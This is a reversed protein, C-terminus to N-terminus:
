MGRGKKTSHGLQQPNGSPQNHPLGPQLPATQANGQGHSQLSSVSPAVLALPGPTYTVMAGRQLYSDNGSGSRQMHLDAQQLAAKTAYVLYGRGDKEGAFLAGDQCAELFYLRQTGAAPAPPSSSLVTQLFAPAQRDLARPLLAQRLRNATPIDTQGTKEFIDSGPEVRDKASSAPLLAADPQAAVVKRGTEDVTLWGAYGIVPLPMGRRKLEAACLEAYSAIDNPAANDEARAGCGVLNVQTPTVNLSALLAVLKAALVDAPQGAFGVAATEDAGHGVLLLKVAPNLGARRPTTDADEPGMRIGEDEFAPPSAETAAISLAGLAAALDPDSYGEDELVMPEGGALRPSGLEHVAPTEGRLDVQLWRAAGAHKGHLRSAAEFVADDNQLQLIVHTVTEDAPAVVVDPHRWSQLSEMPGPAADGLYSAPKAPPMGPVAPAPAAAPGLLDTLFAQNQPQLFGNRQLFEFDLGMDLTPAQAPAGIASVLALQTQTGALGAAVEQATVAIRRAVAGGPNPDSLAWGAETRELLVYHNPAIHNGAIWAGQGPGIALLASQGNQWANHLIDATAVDALQVQTPDVYTLGRLQMVAGLHEIDITGYQISRGNAADRTRALQGALTWLSGQWARPDAARNHYAAQLRPDLRFLAHLACDNMGLIDQWSEILVPQQNNPYVLLQGTAQDIAQVYFPLQVGLAAMETTLAGQAM